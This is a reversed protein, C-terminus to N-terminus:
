INLSSLAMLKCQENMALLQAEKKDLLATLRVNEEMLKQVEDEKQKKESELQTTKAALREFLREITQFQKESSVLTERVSILSSVYSKLTEFDRKVRSLEQENEAARQRQRSTEEVLDEVRQKMENLINNTGMAFSQMEELKLSMNEIQFTKRRIEEQGLTVKEKEIATESEAMIVRKVLIEMVDTIMQVSKILEGIYAGDQEALSSQQGSIGLWTEEDLCDFSSSLDASRSWGSLPTGEKDVLGVGELLKIGCSKHALDPVAMVRAKSKLYTLLTATTKVRQWLVDVEKSEEESGQLRAKVETIKEQLFEVRSKHNEMEQNWMEHTETLQSQLMSLDIDKGAAMEDGLCFKAEGRQSQLSSQYFCSLNAENSSIRQSPIEIQLTKKHKEPTEMQCSELEKEMDETGQLNKRKVLELAETIEDLRKHLWSVQLKLSELDSVSALMSQLEQQTLGELTAAQLKQIIGCAIELLSSRCQMSKLSCYAVINGHKLLLAKLIPALEAKVTYEGVSMSDCGVALFTIATASHNPFDSNTMETKTSGKSKCGKEQKTNNGGEEELKKQESSTESAKSELFQILGELCTKPDKSKMLEGAVEAPSVNMQEVIKEIRSFLQHNSIGLYNAALQKFTSVTCYSLCIHKDMRGARLLAPDIKDKYNTTFVIIREDGCCSLLGDIANLLGSLTVQGHPYSVTQEGAERNELKITCDIDEIVLISRNSVHLLLYELSSDSNVASLNMSYIDFNLHNAMAAILSSKGTGPPGHLLYGRKWVKGIKKYYEKGNIFSDLDEMITNKLDGDLALTDFTMPHDLKVANSSWRERRITHFKVMRNGDKLKKAMDIVHPIYKSKVMEAHNKQFSLEYWRSESTHQNINTTNVDAHYKWKLPVGHFFDVMESHTDLGFTFKRVNESKGVTLRKPSDQASSVSLLHSGLYEMAAKFIHNSSGDHTEEIVLTFESSFCRIFRWLYERIEKPIFDNFTSRIITFTALISLTSAM